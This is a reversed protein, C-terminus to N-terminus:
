LAQVHHAAKGFVPVSPMAPVVEGFGEPRQLTDPFLVLVSLLDHHDFPFFILLLKIKDLATAYLVV